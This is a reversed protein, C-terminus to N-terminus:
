PIISQDGCTGELTGPIADEEPTLENDFLGEATLEYGDLVVGQDSVLSWSVAPNEFDTIDDVQVEHVLDAGEIRGEGSDDRITAQIQVQTGDLDGITNTTLSYVDSQTSELGVACLFNDFEWTTDGITLTVSGPNLRSAIIEQMDSTINAVTPNDQIAAFDVTRLDINAWDITTLDVTAWDIDSGDVTGGDDGSAPQTTGPEGATTTTEDTPSPVTTPEAESGSGCAGVILAITLIIALTSTKSSM